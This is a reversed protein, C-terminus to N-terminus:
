ADTGTPTPAPLIEAIAAVLAGTSIDQPRLYTDVVTDGIRWVLRALGDKEVVRDIAVTARDVALLDSAPVFMRPQGTLDLAMGRDTLVVDAKSRFGLGRIALRELPEDHRTTAVYLVSHVSLEAAGAPAEGVPAVLGGDRRTRRRWALLGLAVLVVAVGAMVLLAGERTM